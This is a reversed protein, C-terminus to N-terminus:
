MPLDSGGVRGHCCRRRQVRDLDRKVTAVIAAVGMRGAFLLPGTWLM